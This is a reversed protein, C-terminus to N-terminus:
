PVAYPSPDIAPERGDVLDGLLEASGSAQTWGLHSHGSNIFLGATRSEGIVPNSHPTSPRWGTFTEAREWDLSGPLLAEGAARISAYDELTASTDYGTFEAMSSLRLGGATTSFAVHRTEDVGGLEPLRIGPKPPVTLAYGKVPLIPLRVGATRALERTRAGAALVVGDFRKPGRSTDVGVARAGERLVRRVAVGRHIILGEAEARRALEHTFAHADGKGSGTTVVVGNFEPGFTAPEHNEFRAGRYGAADFVDFREGLDSLAAHAAALRVATDRDQTLFTMGHRAYAFDLGLQRQQEDLVGLSYVSLRHTTAVNRRVRWPLCELLFRLGWPILRLGAKPHVRIFGRTRTILQSLMTVVAAPNAWAVSDGPVLMGANSATAGSGIDPNSEFLEVRYGRQILSWATTVGVVGGGVVAFSRSSKM